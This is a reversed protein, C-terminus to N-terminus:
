LTSQMGGQGPPLDGTAQRVFRSTEQRITSVELGSDELFSLSHMNMNQRTDKSDRGGGQSHILASIFKVAVGDAWSKDIEHESKFHFSGFPNLPNRACHWGIHGGCPTCAVIINPNLLCAQLISKNSNDRAIGDDNAYCMLLPISVNSIYHKSSADRWYEEKSPYGISNEYPYLPSNRIMYPATSDTMDELHPCHFISSARTIAHQYKQCTMQNTSQRQKWMHRKGGWTLIRSWPFKLKSHHIEMPDCFSIAGTVNRPLDDNSGSEGLYKVLTNAGMSFGILFLKADPAQRSSLVQVVKRLDNTYAANAFRPTALPISGYGRANMGVAIWGNNTCSNMISRMYGYSTDTNVGHLILVISETIPGHPGFTGKIYDERATPSAIIGNNPLEWDLAITAGDRTMKHEERIRNPCIPGPKAYAVFSNLGSRTGIFLSPKYYRLFVASMLSQIQRNNETDQLYVSPLSTLSRQRKMEKHLFFIFSILSSIKAFHSQGIYRFKSQDREHHDTITPGPPLQLINKSGNSSSSSLCTFFLDLVLQFEKSHGGEGEEEEVLLSSERVPQFPSSKQKNM